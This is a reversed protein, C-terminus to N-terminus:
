FLLNSKSKLSEVEVHYTTLVSKINGIRKILQSKQDENIYGKILLFYDAKKEEPILVGYESRNDILYFEQKNEEDIYSFFSYLQNEGKVNLEYDKGKILDFNMERNLEWSLRYDKVHSSIGILEFDYEEEFDLTLKIM